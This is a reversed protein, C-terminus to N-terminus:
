LYFIYNTNICKGTEVFKEFTADEPFIVMKTTDSYKIKVFM